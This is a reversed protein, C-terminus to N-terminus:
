FLIVICYLFFFKLGLVSNIFKFIVKGNALNSITPELNNDFAKINESSIGTSIRNITKKNSHLILSSHMPAFVLFNQYGDNVTFHM